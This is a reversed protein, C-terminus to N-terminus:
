RIKEGWKAKIKPGKNKNRLTMFRRELVPGISATM